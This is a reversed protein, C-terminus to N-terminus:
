FRVSPLVFFFFYSLLQGALTSIRLRSTSLFFDNISISAHRNFTSSKARLVQESVKNFHRGLSRCLWFWSLSWSSFIRLFSSGDFFFFRLPFCQGYFIIFRFLFFFSHFFSIPNHIHTHTHTSHFFFWFKLM